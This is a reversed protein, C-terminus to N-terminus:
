NGYEQEDMAADCEYCYFHKGYQINKSRQKDKQIGCVSKPEWPHASHILGDKGICHILM